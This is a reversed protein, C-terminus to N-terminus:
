RCVKAKDPTGRHGHHIKWLKTCDFTKPSESYGAYGAIFCKAISM